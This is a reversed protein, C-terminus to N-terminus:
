TLLIVNKRLAHALGLEYFVNANLGTLDALILDSEYISVVIDKLINQQNLLDSTRFINHGREEFIDKMFKYLADYESDFSMVVFVKM